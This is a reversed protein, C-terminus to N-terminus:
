GWLSVLGFAAAIALMACLGCFLVKDGVHGFM